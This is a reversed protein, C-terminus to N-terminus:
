PRRVAEQSTTVRGPTRPQTPCISPRCPGHMGGPEPPPPPPPHYFSGQADAPRSAVISAAVCVSWTVWITMVVRKM